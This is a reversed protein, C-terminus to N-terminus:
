GIEIGHDGVSILGFADLAAMEFTDWDQGPTWSLCGDDGVAPAYGVFVTSQGKGCKVVFPGTPHKWGAVKGAKSRTGKCNRTYAFDDFDM